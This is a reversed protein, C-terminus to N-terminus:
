SEHYPGVICQTPRLSNWREILVSKSYQHWYRIKEYDISSIKGDLISCNDIRFSANVTASKVHFHPPTHEKPYIEIKMGHVTDVRAKIEVLILKGNDEWIACPGHLVSELYEALEDFSKLENPNVLYFCRIERAQKKEM